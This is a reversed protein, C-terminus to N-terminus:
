GAMFINIAEDMDEKDSSDKEPIIVGKSKLKDLAASFKDDFVKLAEGLKKQYAEDRYTRIKAPPMEPHYSFWDVFDVEGIHMQGQVQPIYTPDIEDRLLNEVHTWPAPCKIEAFGIVNAADDFVRADPSCGHKGTDDTIFGGADITYGTEFEYLARADAEVMRGRELWYNDPIKREGAEGLIMESLLECIYGDISKSVAGSKATIIRGFQSSTAIGARLKYWEPSRQPIDHFIM